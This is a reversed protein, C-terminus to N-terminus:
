QSNADTSYVENNTKEMRNGNIVSSLIITSSREHDERLHEM